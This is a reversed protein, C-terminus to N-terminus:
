GQPRSKKWVKRQYIGYGIVAILAFAFWQFTYSLNNLSEPLALALPKPWVGGSRSPLLALWVPALPYPLTQAIKPLDVLYWRNPDDARLKAWFSSVKQPAQLAAKLEVRGHPLPIQALKALAGEDSAPFWGRDVLVATKSGDPFFPTLEHAGPVGEFSQDRLIMRHRPDFYGWVTVRRHLFGLPSAQFENWSLAPEAFDAQIVRRDTEHEQWRSLQWIGLATFLGALVLILFTPLSRKGTFLYFLFTM